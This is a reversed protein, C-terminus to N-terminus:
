QIVTINNSLEVDKKTCFLYFIKFSLYKEFPYQMSSYLDTDLLWNLIVCDVNLKTNLHELALRFSFSHKFHMHPRTQPSFVERIGNM